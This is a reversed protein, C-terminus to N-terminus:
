EEKSQSHAKARAQITGTPDQGRGRALDKQTSAQHVRNCSDLINNNYPIHHVSHRHTPQPVVHRRRTQVSGISVRGVSTTILQKCHASTWSFREVRQRITILEYQPDM